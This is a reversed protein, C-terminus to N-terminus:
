VLFALIEGFFQGLFHCNKELFLFMSQLDKILKFCIIPVNSMTPGLSYTRTAIGSCIYAREKVGLQVINGSSNAEILKGETCVATAGLPWCGKGLINEGGLEAMPSIVCVNMQANLQM